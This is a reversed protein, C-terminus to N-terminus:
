ADGEATAEVDALGRAEDVVASPLCREAITTVEEWAHDERAQNFMAELMSVAQLEQPRRFEERAEEVPIRALRSEPFDYGGSFETTPKDPLYVCTWVAEDDSVDLLPHAKYDAIDYNESERHEEVSTAAREVVLMKGREVLDIVVDGTRIGSNM